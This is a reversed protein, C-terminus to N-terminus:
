STAPACSYVSFHAGQSVRRYRRAFTAEVEKSFLPAMTCYDRMTMPAGSNHVILQPISCAEMNRLLVSEDGLGLSDWDMYGLYDFQRATLEVRLWTYPYGSESTGM